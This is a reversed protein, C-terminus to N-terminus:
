LGSLRVAANEFTKIKEIPRDLFQDYLKRECQVLIGISIQLTREQSNNKAQSNSSAANIIHTYTEQCIGATM